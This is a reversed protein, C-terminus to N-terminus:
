PPRFSQTEDTRTRRCHHEDGASLVNQVADLLRYRDEAAARRRDGGPPASAAAQGGEQHVRGPQQVCPDAYQRESQDPAQHRQRSQQRGAVDGGGRGAGQPEGRTAATRAGHGHVDHQRQQRRCGDGHRDGDNSGAPVVHRSEALLHDGAHERCRDRHGLCLQRDRGGREDSRGSCQQRHDGAGHHRFVIVTFTATSANGAEDTATVTVATDGLAFLTGPNQSYTIVPTSVADTATAAAFSVIAGAGSTAEAQANDATIAPRTTDSVTVTFTSTSVNGAEDTATATVATDGLAFLTGPNQSYTIVVASVADTATAAAFSVIAGAASTAEAQADSASIAPATTDSVTVTFTATSVNGKADTATVTVPTEGLAFLTGPNQSYTIVPTSVADTATAAAFSVIAGAASAAEAQVNAATIAPAMTDGVEVVFTTEASNGAADTAMVTVTTAGLPFLTGSEQSYTIVPTSVADIATVAAFSVIAGAASSAEAQADSATIAPATTDSVTVTFTATSVNGEADTATVTVPTDGLAFLTGPNQSYTIVPSSVADTATAAAFSVIAGAGSTAEAQANNATIAPATTDSVTVTLTATSANGAADTATVTVPTDGLAFLTGPNQSYTIMPTSVADTATAAAFSVIAGAASTAEAQANSATIAPPTGDSVTVTFTRTSANGAADKATVTVTTDGLGFLTGSAQSYTIVVASVHDSATAPAFTVVAGASSAAEAVVNDHPVIFPPEDDVWVSFSSITVNGDSDTARCEVRNQGVPFQSHSEPVCVLDVSEDQADSAIVQYTVVAGAASTAAVYMTGPVILTPAAQARVRVTFSVTLEDESLPDNCSVTTIGAPFMDSEFVEGSALRCEAPRREFDGLRTYAQWNVFAGDPGAEDQSEIDIPQEDCTGNDDADALSRYISALEGNDIARKFLFVEDIAGAFFETETSNPTFILSAQSSVQRRGGLFLPGGSSVDRLGASTFVHAAPTGDVFLDVRTGARRLAVHHWQGDALNAGGVVGYGGVNGTVSGDANLLLEFFKYESFEPPYVRNSLLPGSATTKFWLAATFDLQSLQGASQLDVLPSTIDVETVHRVVKEGGPFLLARQDARCATRDIETIAVNRRGHALPIGIGFNRADYGGGLPWHYDPNAFRPVAVVPTVDRVVVDFSGETFNNSSDRAFCSVTTTGIPFTQGSFPQCYLPVGGDVNDLATAGYAVVAGASSTTTFNFPGSFDLVPPAGDATVRVILSADRTTSDDDVVSVTVLNSVIPLNFNCDIFTSEATLPSVLVGAPGCWASVIQTTGGDPDVKFIPFRRLGLGAVTQGLISVTPPVLVTVPFTANLLTCVATSACIM